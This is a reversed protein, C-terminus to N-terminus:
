MERATKNGSVAMEKIMQFFPEHCEPLNGPEAPWYNMEANINLTYGCNWSPMVKDNWIGQLNMPQGGPRSASIMLYRGYQYLLTIMGNDYDDYFRDIREDTPLSALEKKYPMEFSVRDFLQKYDRVHDKKLNEYSKQAAKSLAEEALKVADKGQRSPSKDFGNFSTAASLIFVIENGGTVRMVKDESVIKSGPALVQLRAEYFTGLGNIQDGYLVNEEYKRSGDAFYLEPHRGEAKWGRIQADGRRQGHGPAQGSVKYVNEEIDFVTTARHHSTFHLSFDFEAQKDCTMKMVIVQDPHSIFMERTYNLGNQKYSMRFVSNAIDLERWYDSIEGQTHNTLHWDALPQYNEHLRGLWHYQVLENAEAYKGELLLGVVKDYTPTIDHVKWVTAPEGSYLTNDNLKITENLADGYVMAGLRGNGLPLAENWNAAPKNYWLSLDNAFVCSLPCSLLLGLLLAPLKSKM